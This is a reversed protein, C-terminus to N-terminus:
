DAPLKKIRIDKFQVKMIKGKHLQLAIVGKNRAKGKENDVVESMLVGNISATIKNGRAIVQYDNWDNEKVTKLLEKSDGFVTIRRQGDKSIVVKQGRDNLGGRAGIDHLTGTLNGGEFVAGTVDIDAQYGKLEKSDLGPCRFMIGSNGSEIRYSLRLEFDSFEGGRYILYSHSPNRSTTQGTIAGDQVSWGESEQWGSLDKGNFISVFGAEARCAKTKGGEFVDLCGAISMLMVVCLVSLIRRLM